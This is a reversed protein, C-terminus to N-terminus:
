RGPHMTSVNFLPVHFPPGSNEEKPRDELVYRGHRVGGGDDLQVVCADELAFVQHQVVHVKGNAGPLENIQHAAGAAALAAQHAGQVAVQGELLAFPVHGAEVQALQLPPLNGEQPALDADHELIELQQPVARHVLVEGEHHAAGSPLVALGHIGLHLFHQLLHAKAVLAVLHRM